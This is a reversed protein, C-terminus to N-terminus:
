GGQGPKYVRVWDVKMVAPFRTSADPPGAWGGVALNLVIYLPSKITNPAVAFVHKDVSFKIQKSTWLLGYVHWAGALKGTTQYVDNTTATHVAAYSVDPRQGVSEMVDLEHRDGHDVLWFAPWLGQGAPTWIRAQINGYLIKCSSVTSVRGSTYGTSTKRATIDLQGLRVSLASPGYQQLDTPAYNGTLATWPRLGARSSFEDDFKMGPRNTDCGSPAAPRAEPPRGAAPGASCVLACALLLLLVPARKM